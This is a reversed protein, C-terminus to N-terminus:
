PAAEYVAEGGIMTLMVKADKIDDVTCKMINRYLVVLDAIKGPEISGLQDEWFM